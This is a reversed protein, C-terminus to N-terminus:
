DQSSNGSAAMGTIILFQAAMYTAMIIESALPLTAYFKNLALTLDSVMFLVTGWAVWTYHRARTRLWAAAAMASIALTYISVPIKMLQLGPWLIVLCIGATAFVLLVPTLMKSQIPSRQRLFCYLYLLQMALFCGLGLLFFEEGPMLLFIDGFLAAILALLFSKSQPSAHTIYYGLLSCMILPKAVIVYETLIHLFLINCTFVVTFFSVFYKHSQIFNM